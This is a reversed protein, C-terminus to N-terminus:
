LKSNKKARVFSVVFSIILHTSMEVIMKVINFNSKSAFLHNYLLCIKM